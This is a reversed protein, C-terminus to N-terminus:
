GPVLHGHEGLLKRAPPSALFELFRAVPAPPEPWTAAHFAKFWPYAGSALNAVTPQVGGIALPRLTRHEAALLALTTSGLAGPTQEIRDVAAQDTAAYVMGPHALAGDLARAIDPSMARIVDNDSDVSPRLVLRVPTGDPWTPSRMAYRAALEEITLRDLGRVNAVFVFPTVSVPQWALGEGMNRQRVVVAMDVHGAAVAKVAGASGLGAVVRVRVGPRSKAYAAGLIELMNVMSGTGAVRIDEAAASPIPCVALWTLLLVICRAPFTCAPLRM